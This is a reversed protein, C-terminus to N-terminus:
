TTSPTTGASSRAPLLSACAQRAAAFAPNATGSFSAPPSSNTSSGAGPTSPLTVGHVQLCNRYAAFAPSNLNRGVGGFLGRCARFAAQYQSPITPRTASSPTSGTSASAPASTTSGGFRAGTGRGFGATAVSAPVGHDELCQTLRARVAAFNGGAAAAITTSTTSTSSKTSGGGCGAAVAALALTVGILALSARRRPGNSSATLV